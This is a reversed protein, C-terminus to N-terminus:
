RGSRRDFQLLRSLERQEAPHSARGSVEIQELAQCFEAVLPTLEEGDIEKRAQETISRWNEPLPM